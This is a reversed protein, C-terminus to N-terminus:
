LFVALPSEETGTPTSFDPRYAGACGRMSSGIAARTISHTSYGSRHVATPSRKFSSDAKQVRHWRITQLINQIKM